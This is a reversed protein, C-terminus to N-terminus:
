IGTKKTTTNVKKKWITKNKINKKIIREIIRMASVVLLVFLGVAVIIGKFVIM